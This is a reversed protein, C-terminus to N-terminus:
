MKYEECWEWRKGHTYRLSTTAAQHDAADLLRDITDKMCEVEFGADVLAELARALHEAKVLVYDTNCTSVAFIPVGAEALASSVQALIGVLLFDLEGEIRFARWGDERELTGAPVSETPCVLSIEEDTVGVFTLERALDIGQVDAVKCVSLETDFVKLKM